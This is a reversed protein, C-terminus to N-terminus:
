TLRLETSYYIEYPTRYSLCKRLRKNIKDFAQQILEDPKDDLDEGKPFYERIM